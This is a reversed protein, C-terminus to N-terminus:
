SKHWHPQPGAIEEYALRVDKHVYGKQSVPYGRERAYARLGAWWTISKERPTVKRPAVPAEGPEHGADMYPQIIDRLMKENESTLDLEKWEGNLGVTLTTTAEVTRPDSLDDWLRVEVTRSM